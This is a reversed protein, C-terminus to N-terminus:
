LSNDGGVARSFFTITVLVGLEDYTAVEVTLELM